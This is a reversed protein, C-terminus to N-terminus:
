QAAEFRYPEDVRLRHYAEAWTGALREGLATRLFERVAHIGDVDIEAMQEAVYTESPLTLAQAVFAHDQSRDALTRAFADALGDDLRLPHGARRGDILGLMLKLAYSQGSEWRVFPDPDHAMLFRRDADTLDSELNVPASFGRLLSPVPREPVDAFTFRQEAETLELVRTTGAAAGEGELRLPLPAGAPDLLGLALPIHMPEKTPQGPTPPTRQAVILTYTRAIPDHEGRVTLRPTGAQSYWRRFRALDRGSAAEMAAVFDECTVAQGDHREFYVQMGRQFAAEGILTHLMRIVEAGKEYVTTTYFNNTEVYSDPRAPHALPGADELFQTARLRRVDAIRKVPRSHLDSTFAQDRFVTLGEKLSLQFWDRCTVR